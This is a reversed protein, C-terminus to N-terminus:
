KEILSNKGCKNRPRYHLKFIFNGLQIGPNFRIGWGTKLVRGKRNKMESYKKAHFYYNHFSNGSVVAKFVIDRSKFVSCQDTVGEIYVDMYM